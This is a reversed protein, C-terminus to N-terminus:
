HGSEIASILDEVAKVFDPLRKFLGMAENEDYIHAATNRDTLFQFWDTPSAIVGLDAAIRIADRPSATKIGKYLAYEQMVKWALEFTFEFRQITGDRNLETTAEKLATKLKETAKKLSELKKM